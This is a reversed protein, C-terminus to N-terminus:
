PANLVTGMVRTGEDHLQSILETTSSLRTGDKRAVVLAHGARRAVGLADACFEAAPTDILIVDFAPRLVQLLAPWAERSLLDLPNPPCDGAPLLHLPGFAPLATVAARDDSRASLVTSLGIRDSVDFILHQRPWRLDADILLTRCGLQAFAVALNAALYSRGDGRAPSVIALSHAQGDEAPWRQLLQSRLARMQEACAHFPEFATVLELSIRRNDPRLHPLDYQATIAHVLDEVTILKLHLAAAGFRSGERHQLELVREIGAPDLKGQAALIGGLRRDPHTRAQLGSEVAMLRPTAPMASM